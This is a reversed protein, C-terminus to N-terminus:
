HIMKSKLVEEVELQLGMEKALNRVARVLQGQKPFMDRATFLMASVRTLVTKGLSDSDTNLTARSMKEIGGFFEDQTISIIMLLGILKCNDKDSETFRTMEEGLDLGDNTEDM